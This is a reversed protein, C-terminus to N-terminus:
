TLDSVMELHDPSRWLAPENLRKQNSQDLVAM